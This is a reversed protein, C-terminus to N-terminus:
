PTFWSVNECETKITVTSSLPLLRSSYKKLFLDSKAPAFIAPFFDITRNIIILYHLFNCISQWKMVCRFHTHSKIRIHGHTYQHKETKYTRVRTAKYARQKYTTHKTQWLISQKVIYKQISRQTHKSKSNFHLRYIKNITTPPDNTGTLSKWDLTAAWAFLFRRSTFVSAWLSAANFSSVPLACPTIHEDANLLLLLLTLTPSSWYHAHIASKGLSNNELHRFVESAWPSIATLTSKPCVFQLGHRSFAWVCRKSSICGESIKVNLHGPWLM